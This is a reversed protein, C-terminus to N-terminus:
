RLVIPLDIHYIQLEDFGIDFGANQPRTQGDIDTYVGADAGADIATSGPRLHYNNLAPNVFLPNGFVDHTGGSMAGFKNLTNSYFLNYDEFVSGGLRNLGISHNAVINDEFTVNGSNVRVADGNILSSAGITTFLIQETGTPSLNLATGANSLSLNDAFLSNVIRGDGAMQFIGGGGSGALNALFQSTSITLTSSVFVAGGLGEATNSLFRTGSITLSPGGCYIAGGGLNGATNSLFQSDAVQTTGFALVGGGNNKSSNGIYQVNALTANGGAGSGGGSGTQSHNNLFTTNSAILNNGADLGGSNGNTIVTNYAFYAGSVTASLPTWAGGGNGSRSTNSLVQTGTLAFSSDSYLGGGGSATNSIFRGGDMATRHNGAYGIYAGGGHYGASNTFFDVSTLTSDFWM